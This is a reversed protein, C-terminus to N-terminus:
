NSQNVIGIMRWSGGIWISPFGQQLFANCGFGEKLVDRDSSRMEIREEEDSKNRDPRVVCDNVRGHRQM